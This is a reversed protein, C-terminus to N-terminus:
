LLIVFNIILYCSLVVVLAIVATFISKKARDKLGDDVSVVLMVGAVIVALLALAGLIQLLFNIIGVIEIVFVTVPTTPVFVTVAVNALIIIAVGVLSHFFRKRQQEMESEQGQLLILRVGQFVVLASVAASVMLRMYLIISDLATLVPGQNILTARAGTGVAQAILGAVTVFAAGSIAYGYASKVETVTNEDDSDWVLRMAYYFFFLTALSLFVAQLAPIITALIYASFGLFGGAVCPLGPVLGCTWPATNAPIVVQAMSQLPLLLAAIGPLLLRPFRM